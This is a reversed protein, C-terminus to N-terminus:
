RPLISLNSLYCYSVCMRVGARRCMRTVDASGKWGKRHRLLRRKKTEMSREVGKWVPLSTLRGCNPPNTPPHVRYIDPLHTGQPFTPPLIRTTECGRRGACAVSSLCSRGGLSGCGGPIASKRWERAINSGGLPPLTPPDLGRKGVSPHARQRRRPPPAAPTNGTYIPDTNGVGRLQSICEGSREKRTVV